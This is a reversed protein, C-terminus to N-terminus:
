WHLLDDNEDVQDRGLSSLEKILESQRKAMLDDWVTSGKKGSISQLIGRDIDTGAMTQLWRFVGSSMAIELVHSPDRSVELGRRRLVKVLERHCKEMAVWHRLVTLQMDALRIKGLTLRSRYNRAKAQIRDEQSVLVGDLLSLNPCISIVYDRYGPLKTVKNGTLSLKQLNKLLALSRLNDLNKLLNNVLSLCQLSSTFPGWDAVPLESIKNNGLYLTKIQSFDNSLTVLNLVEIDLGVLSLTSSSLRSYAIKSFM